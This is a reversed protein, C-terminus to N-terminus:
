RRGVRTLVADLEAWKIPKSLFEDMGAALCRERDSPMVNATIAIIPVHAGSPAELERIRRTAALGDMVPMAVDMLIAFYKAPVFAEVAAVGDASTETCYGLKELMKGALMRSTLDDEVVHVLAGSAATPEPAGLAATPSAAVPVQACNEFPLHFIFTSGQGPHSSVTISGGMAEALRKSIALGLGTGGFRRNTMADAQTFPAFLRTLTAASIGIGTDAVSFDLFQRGGTVVPSVRLIVTGVSTFKVANGLLNILIQSIRRADGIILKPVDAAVECRFELGKDSAAKRVALDSLEVLEAIALPDANLTLAGHEISSFDLIDNVVALLHNGSHSVADVYTSQEPNLSTYNLLEAFGLVGNLPTRLEHSMVSLFESKAAAALEAQALAAALKAETEKQETIEQVTGFWGLPAGDPDLELEACERVWKIRGGVIIRFEFFEGIRAQHRVSDMVGRDEPHVSALFQESTVPTGLPIEFIRYTEDSWRVSNDRASARWCGTHAMAQARNLDAQCDRLAAEAQKHQTIDRTVGLLNTRGSSPDRLPVAHTELWRSYGDLGICEFRCMATQGQFVLRLTELFEGHHAPAVFDLLPRGQAQALSEAGLMKLGAPNIELLIGEPSVIKVCEPETEYITKHHTGNGALMPELQKHATIGRVYAGHREEEGAKFFNAVIGVPVLRNDKTRHGAEFTMSGRQQLEVFHLPRSEASYGVNIKPVRMALFICNGHWAGLM